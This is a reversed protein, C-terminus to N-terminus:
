FWGLFAGWAVVSVTAAAGVTGWLAWTTWHRRPHHHASSDPPEPTPNMLGAETWLAAFDTADGVKGALVRRLVNLEAPHPYRRMVKELWALREKPTRQMLAAPPTETRTLLLMLALAMLDYTPEAIRTGLGWFARDYFPTFQRVSRGFPTVGGVDVFRVTALGSVNVMVNQPKIDCFAHSTRHLESLGSLVQQVIDNVVLNPVGLLVQDLSKGPVWEMVYFYQPGSAITDDVLMPAPFAASAPSVRELISWELAIDAASPCIKMAARGKATAVLYVDGNAGSGLHREIRLRAGTWKGEIVSGLTLAGVPM